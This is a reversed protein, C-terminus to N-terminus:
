APKQASTSTQSGNAPVDSTNLLQDMSSSRFSEFPDM